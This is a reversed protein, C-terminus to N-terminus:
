EPFHIMSAHDAVIVFLTNKYWESKSATNFFQRLANDVYGIPEHLPLQGKPFKGAYHEPVKFPHHSSLSFFSSFFPQKFTDLKKAMFQMFPEDWIGWIGDFDDDNNYENKGYYNKIGALQMYASFGMSGNPAGHFFATEYGKEGLLK